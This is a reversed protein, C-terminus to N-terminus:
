SSKPYLREALESLRNRTDTQETAALDLLLRIVDSARLYTVEGVVVFRVVVDAKGM